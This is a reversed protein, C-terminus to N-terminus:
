RINIVPPNIVPPPPPVNVEVNPTFVRWNWIQLMIGVPVVVGTEHFTPTARLLLRPGGSGTRIFDFGLDIPISLFVKNGSFANQNNSSQFDAIPINVALSVGTYIWEAKPINFHFGIPITFCFPTQMAEGSSLLNSGSYIETHFSVGSNISLWDFLYFGYGVGLNATFIGSDSIKMGGVGVNVGFFQNFQEHKKELNNEMEEQAFVPFALLGIVMLVLCINKM